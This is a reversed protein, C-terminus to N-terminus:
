VRSLNLQFTFSHLGRGHLAEMTALEKQLRKKDDQIRENDAQLRRREVAVRAEVMEELTDAELVKMGLGAALRTLDAKLCADAAKERAGKAAASSAKTADLSAQLGLGAGSRRRGGFVSLPIGDDAEKPPVPATVPLEAMTTVLQGMMARRGVGERPATGAAQLLAAASGAAPTGGPGAAAAKPAVVRLRMDAALGDAAPNLSRWHPMMADLMACLKDVVTEARDARAGHVQASRALEGQLGAIRDGLGAAHEWLRYVTETEALQRTLSTWIHAMLRGRESCHNTVERWPRWVGGSRVEGEGTKTM